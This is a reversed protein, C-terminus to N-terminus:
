GRVTRLFAALQGAENDRMYSSTDWGATDRAVGARHDRVAQALWSAIGDVDAPVLRGTGPHGDLREWMEGRPAVALMPRAAAMYEFLKAPEVRGTRPLDSLLLLLAQSGQMLRVAASHDLYPHEVVRCPPPGASSAPSSRASAAVSAELGYGPEWSRTRRVVMEPPIDHLLSDDYLPVSRNAVTLVSM